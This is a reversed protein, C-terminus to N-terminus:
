RLRRKVKFNVHHRETGCGSQPHLVRRICTIRHELADAITVVPDFHAGSIPGFTLILAILAAGTALTNALLAVGINGGSLREAMIGSGVVTAVLLGTGLAESTVRKAM